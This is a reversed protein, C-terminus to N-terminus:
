HTPTTGATARRRLLVLRVLMLLVAGCIAGLTDAVVDLVDASRGPVGQQYLELGIGYSSTLLVSTVARQLTSPMVIGGCLARLLLFGLAAYAWFHGTKDSVGGPLGKIDPVVSAFYIFVV